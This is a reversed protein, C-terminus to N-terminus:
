PNFIAIDGKRAQTCIEIHLWTVTREANEMRRIFPYKEQNNLVHFYVYEAKHDKFKLDFATGFKHASFVAGVSSNPSRLGSNKYNGGIHWDNVTIPGFDARLDELTKGTNVNLFDASRNGIAPHNYMQPNVLERLDFHESIKM